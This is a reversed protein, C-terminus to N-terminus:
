KKLLNQIVAAEPFFITSLHSLQIILPFIGFFLTLVGAIGAPMYKDLNSDFRELKKTKCYNFIKNFIVIGIISILVAIGTGVWWDLVEKKVLIPWLEQVSVGLKQALTALTADLNPM